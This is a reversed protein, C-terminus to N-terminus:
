HENLISESSNINIPLNQNLRSYLIETNQNPFLEYAKTADQLANQKLGMKYDVLALYFWLEGDQPFIKLSNELFDKAKNQDGHNSLLSAYNEYSTEYNPNNKIAVKFCEEAKSYDSENFYYVALNNLNKWGEPALQVSRELHKLADKKIGAKYLELGLNSELSWSSDSYNIDHSYLTLRDIWNTNRVMTRISLASIIGVILSAMLIRNGEFKVTNILVGITGLLGASAFYFWREAVTTDLPIIQLHIGIGILFWISFFLYNNFINKRCKWFCIGLSLIIFLFLTDLLLPLYFNNLDLSKVLWDQSIALHNPYLFTKIYYFFIKPITQLRLSTSAQQIPIEAQKLSFASAFSIRAFIYIGIIFCSASILKLVAKKNFTMYFLNVVLIFLIASEKTFLSCLLFFSGLLLRKISLRATDLIILALIGFLFYLPEQIASIYIVAETNLPHVLFILALILTLNKKFFRSFLIYLLCANVIHIAVQFLHYFFPNTGSFTYLLSDVCMHIPRYFSLSGAGLGLFFNFCNNLSHTYANNVIQLWDDWVFGNFLSNFYVVLGIIVIFYIAKRTTLPVFIDKFSFEQKQDPM